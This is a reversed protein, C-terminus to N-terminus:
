APEVGSGEPTGTDLRIERFLSLMERDPMPAELPWVLVADMRRPTFPPSGLLPRLHPLLRIAVPALDRVFGRELFHRAAEPDNAALEIRALELLPGGGVGRDDRLERAIKQATELDGRSLAISAKMVRLNPKDSVEAAARRYLDRASEIDGAALAANLQFGYTAAVYIPNDSLTRQQRGIAASEEWRGTYTMLWALWITAFSEQPDIELVRRVHREAGAVDGRCFEEVAVNILAPTFRPNVEIAQALAANSGERDGSFRLVLSKAKYGEALKPNIQIAREAAELGARFTEDVNESIGFQLMQGHADAIGAWALAYNPDVGIAEQFLNLANRMGEPTYQGYQERGKLYLDYARVDQPRDQTLRRAESPTLAVRLAQAIASAIEEQVAFVDELVRDYRDAWLHFGDSGNILQASIRVRDGAKRVSGELVARVGLDSAVRSIDVSEGRYKAVANRSAVRLGKIKSLDTLIDETIGACFYESEKDTSLNEFYLM